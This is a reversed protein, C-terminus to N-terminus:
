AVQFHPLQARGEAPSRWGGAHGRRSVHRRRRRRESISDDFRGDKWVLEFLLYRNKFRVM